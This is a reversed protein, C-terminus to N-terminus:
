VYNCNRIMRNQDVLNYFTICNCIVQESYIAEASENENHTLCNIIEILWAINVVYNLKEKKKKAFTTM